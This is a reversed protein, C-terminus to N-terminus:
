LGARSGGPLAWPAMAHYMSYIERRGALAIPLSAGNTSSVARMTSPKAGLKNTVGASM